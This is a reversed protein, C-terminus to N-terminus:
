KIVVRGWGQATHSGVGSYEAFRALTWYWTTDGSPLYYSVNGTFGNLCHNRYQITHTEVDIFLMKPMLTNIDPLAIGTIARWRRAISGFIVDPSPSVNCINKNRIFTPTAFTLKMERQYTNGMLLDYSFPGRTISMGNSLVRVVTRDLANITLIDGDLYASFRSVVKSKHIDRCLTKDYRGICQIAAYHAGEYLNVDTKSTWRTEFRAIDPM